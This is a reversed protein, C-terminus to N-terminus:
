APTAGRLHSWNMSGGQRVEGNVVIGYRIGTKNVKTVAIHTGKATILQDGVKVATETNM